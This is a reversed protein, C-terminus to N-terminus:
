PCKTSYIRYSSSRVCVRARWTGLARACVRPVELRRKGERPPRTHLMGTLPRLHPTTFSAATPVRRLGPNGHERWRGGATSRMIRTRLHVTTVVHAWNKWRPSSASSRHLGILKIKIIGSGIRDPRPHTSSSKELNISQTLLKTNYFLWKITKTPTWDTLRLSYYGWEQSCSTGQPDLHWKTCNLM